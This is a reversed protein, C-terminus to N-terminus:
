EDDGGDLAGIDVSSFQKSAESRFQLSKGSRREMAHPPCLAVDGIIGIFHWGINQLANASDGSRAARCRKVDCSAYVGTIKLM